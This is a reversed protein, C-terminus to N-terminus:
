DHRDFLETAINRPPPPIPRHRPDSFAIVAARRVPAPAISSVSAHPTVRVIKAPHVAPAATRASRSLTTTAADAVRREAVGSRAALLAMATVVMAAGGSLAAVAHRRRKAPGTASLPPVTRASPRPATEGTHVMPRAAVPMAVGITDRYADHLAARMTRADEWREAQKLSLARDVLAVVLPPAGPLATTLSRAPTLFAAALVEPVTDEEHVFHGSLLTFMTAGVAWLDSQAGVLDWRGRAQEPSMFEPTGMPLDARTTSLSAPRDLRAIGFDLLKVLGDNTLFVNEPKIDRHVIGRDHAAALVDLVQDALLLVEDVALTGGAIAAREALSMGGLLEMVLFPRGDAALDDDLVQVVGPHEVQNAIYGERLFRSRIDEDTSMERHLLKLAGRAGNRHTVAYVAAMGGIGLLADLHWKGLLTVGVNEEAERQASEWHSEM